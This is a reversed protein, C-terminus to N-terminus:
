DAKAFLRKAECAIATTAQQQQQQIM